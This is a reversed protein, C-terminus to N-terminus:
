VKPKNGEGDNGEKNPFDVLQVPRCSIFANWCNLCVDWHRTSIYIPETSSDNVERYRGNIEKKCIDCIFARM